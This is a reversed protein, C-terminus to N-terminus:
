GEQVVLGGTGFDLRLALEAPVGGVEVHGILFPKRESFSGGLGGGISSFVERYEVGMIEIVPDSARASPPATKYWRSEKLQELMATAALAMVTEGVTATANMVTDKNTKM